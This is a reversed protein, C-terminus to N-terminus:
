ENYVEKLKNFINELHMKRSGKVLLVYREQVLNSLERIAESENEFHLVNNSVRSIVRSNEGYTYFKKIGFKKWNKGIERHLETSYEGLELMDGLFFCPTKNLRKSMKKLTIIAENVGEFSANYCDLIVTMQGIEIIDEHNKEKRFENLGNVIEEHSLGLEEGVRYAFCANKCNCLSITDLIVAKTEGKKNKLNFSIGNESYKCTESSRKLDVYMFRLKKKEFRKFKREKPVFVIKPNYNIIEMKAELISKKTKFYEIHASGCNTVICIEPESIRALWDIEGKSRMGMEVVCWEEDHASLLTLPVGIENNQNQYTGCVSYKQKLVSIVMNKTTTKGSSGTIAIIRAKSRFHKAFLGLAQVTSTVKIYTASTDIDMETVIIRAGNNIADEIYDHGDFKEGKIAFFISAENTKERSDITLLSVKEKSGVLKGEIAQSIEDSYCERIKIM